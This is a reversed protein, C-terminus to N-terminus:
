AQADAGAEGAQPLDGAAVVDVEVLPHLQVERVDVVPSQSQVHLDKQLGDGGYQGSPPGTLDGSISPPRAGDASGRSGSTIWRCPFNVGYSTKGPPSFLPM